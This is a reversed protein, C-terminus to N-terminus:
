GRKGPLSAAINAAELKPSFRAVCGEKLESLSRGWTKRKRRRRRRERKRKKKEKERERKRKRERKEKKKGGEKDEGGYTM